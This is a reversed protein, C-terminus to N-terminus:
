CRRSDRAPSTLGLQSTRWTSCARGPTLAPPVSLSAAQTLVGPMQLIEANNLWSLRDACRYISSERLTQQVKTCIEKSFGYETGYLLLVDVAPKGTGCVLRTHAM